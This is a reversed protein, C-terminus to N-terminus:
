SCWFNQRLIGRHLQGVGGYSSGPHSRPINVATSVSIAYISIDLAAPYIGPYLGPVKSLPASIFRLLPHYPKFLSAAPIRWRPTEAIQSCLEPEFYAVVARRPKKKTKWRFVFGGPYFGLHRSTFFITPVALNSSAVKQGGSLRALWAASRGSM